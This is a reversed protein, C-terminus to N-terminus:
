TCSALTSTNGSRARGIDSVFQQIPQGVGFRDPRNQQPHARRHMDQLRTVIHIINDGHGGDSHHIRLYALGSNLTISTAPPNEGGGSLCILACTM